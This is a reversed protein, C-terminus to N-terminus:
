VVLPAASEAKALGKVFPSAAKTVKPRDFTPVSLSIRALTKPGEFTLVGLSSLSVLCSACRTLNILFLPSDM